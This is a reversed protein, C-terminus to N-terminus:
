NTEGVPQQHCLSSLHHSFYSRLLFLLVLGRFRHLSPPLQENADGAFMAKKKRRQGDGM